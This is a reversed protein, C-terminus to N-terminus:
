LNTDLLHFELWCIVRVCLRGELDEAEVGL